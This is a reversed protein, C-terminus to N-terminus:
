YFTINNKGKVIANKGPPIKVITGCSFYITNTTMKDIPDCNEDITISSTIPTSIMSNVASKLNLPKNNGTSNFTINGYEDMEVPIDLHNDGKVTINSQDDIKLYGSYGHDNMFSIIEKDMQLLPPLDSYISPCGSKIKEFIIEKNHKMHMPLKEYDLLAIKKAVDLDNFLERNIYPLAKHPESSNLASLVVTKNRKIENTAHRLQFPRIKVIKAVADVNNWVEKPCSKADTIAIEVYQMLDEVIQPCQSPIIDITTVVNDNSIQRNTITKFPGNIINGNADRIQGITTKISGVKSNKSINYQVSM